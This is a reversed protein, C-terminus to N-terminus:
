MMFSFLLGTNGSGSNQLLAGMSNYFSFNMNGLLSEIFVSSSIYSITNNQVQEAIRSLQNTFGYNTNRNQTFFQEAKGNEVAAGFQGENIQMYGNSDFGIGIQGLSYAYAAANNRLQSALNGAKPDEANGLAAGYLKNYNQVFSEVQNRAVDVDRGQSVTVSGISVQKFVATVGNGINVTNSQSTQVAGGNISYIANQAQRTVNAAGTEAVAGGSVDSITFISKANVGTSQASLQLASTGEGSNVNVAADIGINQINIATAMKQQVDKNTDGASVNISFQYTRGNTEISFEQLGFVSSEDNAQLATGDNTQGAALQDIQVKIAPVANFAYPNNGGTVSVVDKDSSVASPKGIAGFSLSSVASMLGSGAERLAMVYKLGRSNFYTDSGTTKGNNGGGVNLLGSLYFNTTTNSSSIGFVSNNYNLMANYYNEYATSIVL